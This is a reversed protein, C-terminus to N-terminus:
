FSWRVEQYFSLVNPARFGRQWVAEVAEPFPVVTNWKGLQQVFGLNIIRIIKPVCVCVCVCHTSNIHTITFHSLRPYIGTPLPPYVSVVAATDEWFCQTKLGSLQLTARILTCWRTFIQIDWVSPRASAYLMGVRAYKGGLGVVRGCLFGASVDSESCFFVPPRSFFCSVWQRCEHTPGRPSPARVILLTQPASQVFAAPTVNEIPPNEPRFLHLERCGGINHLTTPSEHPNLLSAWRNTLEATQFFNEATSHLFKVSGSSSLPDEHGLNLHLHKKQRNIPHSFYFEIWLRCCRVKSKQDSFMRQYIISPYWSDMLSLAPAVATAWRHRFCSAAALMSSATDNCGSLM